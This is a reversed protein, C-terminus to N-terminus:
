SFRSACVCVCVHLKQLSTILPLLSTIVLALWVNAVSTDIGVDTTVAGGIASEEGRGPRIGKFVSTCVRACLSARSLIVMELAFVCASWKKQFLIHADLYHIHRGWTRRRRSSREGKKKRRDEGGVGGGDVRDILWRIWFTLHQTRYIIKM